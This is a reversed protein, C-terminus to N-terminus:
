RRSLMVLIIVAGCAILVTGLDQVEGAISLGGGILLYYFLGFLAGASGTQHKFDVLAVSLVNPIAIGFSIVVLIMPVVFWISDHITHVGIAGITFVSTSFWLLSRQSARKSLLAKNFYSGLLAGFGMAFGSYGFQASNFGLKEFAFPALQYYSFLAINYLAVLLAASWIQTDKLMRVGLSGLQLPQSEGQTEPLKLLSYICLV